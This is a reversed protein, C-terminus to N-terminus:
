NWIRKKLEEESVINHWNGMSYEEDANMGLLLWEVTENIYNTMGNMIVSKLDKEFYEVPDIGYYGADHVSLIYESEVELEQFDDEIKLAALLTIYLGVGQVLSNCILNKSCIGTMRWGCVSYVRGTNLYEEWSDERWNKLTGYKEWYTDTMEACLKKFKESTDYGLEAFYQKHYDEFAENWLSEYIRQASAGYQWAFTCTKSPRRIEDKFVKNLEEETFSDKEPSMLEAIRQTAKEVDQFVVGATVTHGDAGDLEAKILPDKHISYGLRAELASFDFDVIEKGPAAELVSRIAESYVPNHLPLNQFGPNQSSSRGTSATFLLIEPHIKGKMTNKKIGTLVELIKEQTSRELILSALASKEAIVKLVDADTSKKGEATRKHTDFGLIDFFLERLYDGSTVKFPKDPHLRDWQKIEECKAIKGEIEFIANEAVSMNDILKTENVHFGRYSTKSFLVAGRMYTRFLEYMKPEKAYFAKQHFMVKMTFLSDAACYINRVREPVTHIENLAYQPKDGHKGILQEHVSNDYGIIGEYKLTCFKLSNGRKVTPSIMHSAIVTDWFVNAIQIGLMETFWVAEMGVNAIVWKIEPNTLIRRLADKFEESNYWNFGYSVRGDSLSVTYIKSEDSYPKLNNTEIDVALTGPTNFNNIIAIAEKETEISVCYDKYNFPTYEKKWEIAEKLYKKFYLDRIRFNDDKKLCEWEWLPKKEPRLNNFKKLMNQKRGLSELPFEPSYNPFVYCETKSYPIKWGYYREANGNGIRSESADEGFIAAVAEEGLLIVKKPNKEKIEQWVLDRCGNRMPTTAKPKGKHDRPVFCRISHVYWCEELVVNYKALRDRLYKQTIGSFPVGTDEEQTSVIGDIIMIGNEGSGSIGFKGNACNHYAGCSECGGKLKTVKHRKKKKVPEAIPTYFGKM